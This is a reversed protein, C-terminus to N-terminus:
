NARGAHANRWWRGYSESAIRGTRRSEIRGWGRLGAGNWEGRGAPAGRETAGRGDVGLAGRAMDVLWRSKAGWEEAGTGHWWWEGIGGLEGFVIFCTCCLVNSHLMRRFCIFCRSCVTAVCTHFCICCGTVVSAVQLMVSVAVSSQFLHFMQFMSNCCQTFCICCKSWFAQLM